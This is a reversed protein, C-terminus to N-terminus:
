QRRDLDQSSPEDAIGRASGHDTKDWRASYIDRTLIIRVSSKDDQCGGM